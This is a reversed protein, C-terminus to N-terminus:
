GRWPLTHIDCADRSDFRQKFLPLIYTNKAQTMCLHSRTCRTCRTCRAATCFACHTYALATPTRARLLLAARSLARLPARHRPAFLARGCRPAHPTHPATHHHPAHTNTTHAHHPALHLHATTCAHLLPPTCAHAHCHPTAGLAAYHLRYACGPTSTHHQTTIDRAPVITTSGPSLDPWRSSPSLCSWVTARPGEM